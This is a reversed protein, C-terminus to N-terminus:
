FWEDQTEVNRGDILVPIAVKIEVMQGKVLVFKDLPSKRVLAALEKANKVEAVFVLIEPLENDTRKWNENDIACMAEFLNMGPAKTQKVRKFFLTKSNNSITTDEIQKVIKSYNIIEKM